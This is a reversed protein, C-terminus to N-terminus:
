AKGTHLAHFNLRATVNEYFDGGDHIQGTTAFLDNAYITDNDDDDDDDDSHHMDVQLNIPKSQLRSAPATTATAQKPKTTVPLYLGNVKPKVDKTFEKSELHKENFVNQHRRWLPWKKYVLVGIVIIVAVLLFPVVIAVAPSSSHGSAMPLQLEREGHKNSAYCSVVFPTEAKATLISTVLHDKITKSINFARTDSSGNVAWRISAPPRSSAVCLCNVEDVKLQCISELGIDPMYEVQLALPESEKSGMMNHARCSYIADRRVGSVTLVESTESLEVVSHPQAEYWQFQIPKPSGDSQCKLEVTSGEKISTAKTTVKVDKPGSNIKLTVSSVAMRGGEHRVTCSLKKGDDIRSATWSFVSKLKWNGVVDNVFHDVTVVGDNWNWTLAPPSDPCSHVAECQVTALQGDALDTPNSMQPAPAQGSVLLQVTQDYFKYSSYQDPNPWAYLRVGNDSMRAGSIKLTCNGDEVKGVLNTREKFESLVSWPEKSDFVKPYGINAFQYWHISTVKSEPSFSCPIIVCSREVVSMSRPIKVNWSAACFSLGQLICFFSFRARVVRRNMKPPAVVAHPAEVANINLPPPKPSGGGGLGQGCALYKREQQQM